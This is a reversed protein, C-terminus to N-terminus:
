MQVIWPTRARVRVRVRVSCWASYSGSHCARGHWSMDQVASDERTILQLRLQPRVRVRLRVRQWLRVRRM